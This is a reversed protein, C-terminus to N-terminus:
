RGANKFESDTIFFDAPLDFYELLDDLRKMVRQNSVPGYLEILDELRKKIYDNKAKWCSLHYANFDFSLHKKDMKVRKSITSIIRM